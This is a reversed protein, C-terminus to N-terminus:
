LIWEIVVSRCCMVKNLAYGVDVLYCCDLRPKVWPSAPGSEV